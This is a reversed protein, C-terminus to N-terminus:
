DEKPAPFLSPMIFVGTFQYFMEVQDPQSIEDWQMHNIKKGEVLVCGMGALDKFVEIAKEFNMDSALITFRVQEAMEAPTQPKEDEKSKEKEAKKEGLLKLEQADSYKTIVQLVPIVKLSALNLMQALKMSKILFKVLPSVLTIKDVYLKQGATGKGTEAYGVPSSLNYEFSDVQFEPQKNENM